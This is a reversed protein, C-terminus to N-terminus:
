LMLKCFTRKSSQGASASVTIACQFNVAALKRGKSHRQSLNGPSLGDTILMLFVDKEWVHAKRSLSDLCVLLPTEAYFSFLIAVDAISLRLRLVRSVGANQQEHYFKAADVVSTLHSSCLRVFFENM